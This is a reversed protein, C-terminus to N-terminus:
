PVCRARGNEEALCGSFGLNTCSLTSTGDPGCYTIVGDTCTEDFSNQYCGPYACKDSQNGFSGEVTRCEMDFRSCNTRTEDDCSDCGVLYNGECHRRGSAGCGQNTGVCPHATGDLELTCGEESCTMGELTCDHFVTFEGEMAIKALSGSCTHVRYPWLIEFDVGNYGCNPTVFEMGQEFDICELDFEDCRVTIQARGGLDDTDVCAVLRDRDLCGNDAPCERNSVGENLCALVGDCDPAAKAVCNGNALLSAEAGLRGTLASGYVFRNLAAKAETSSGRILWSICDEIGEVGLCASYAACAPAMDAHDVQIRHSEECGSSVLGLLFIVALM